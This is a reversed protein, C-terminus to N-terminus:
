TAAMHHSAIRHTTLWVLNCANFSHCTNNAHCCTNFTKAFVRFSAFTSSSLTFSYSLTHTNDEIRSLIGSIADLMQIFYLRSLVVFLLFDFVQFVDGDIYVLLGANYAGCVCM